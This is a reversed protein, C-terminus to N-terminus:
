HFYIYLLMEDYKTKEENDNRRHDTQSNEEASNRTALPKVLRDPPRSVRRGLNEQEADKFVTSLSRNRRSM